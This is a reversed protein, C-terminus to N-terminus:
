LLSLRGSNKPANCTMLPYSIWRLEYDTTTAKRLMSFGDRNQPHILESGMWHLSFDKMNLMFATGVPCHRDAVIEMMGGATAMKITSYGFQATEKSLERQGRATMLTELVQFDEPNLYWVGQGRMKARTKAQAMFLKMREEHSKGAIDAAAVRFGGLRLPDLARTAATVSHLAPPTATAAIFAPVGHIFRTGSTGLFASERFLSDGVALTGTIETVDNLTVTGAEPDVSTVLSSGSKVSHSTTDSGDGTSAVVSMNKEFNGVTAPDALTIVDGAIAAVVGRAQGGNNWCAISFDEAVQELGHEVEVFHNELTAGRNTRSAELAKDGLGVVLFYDGALIQWKTTTVPIARSQATSFVGGIGQGLGTILPSIFVDGVMGSEGGKELMGFLPNDPFMIMETRDPTFYEKLLGDYSSLTSAAFAM